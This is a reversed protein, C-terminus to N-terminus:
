KGNERLWAIVDAMENATLGHAENERTILKYTKGGTDLEEAFAEAVAYPVQKDGTSHILLIPTNIRDAFTVASRKEYEDSCDAPSGGIRRELMDRMDPRAEYITHLDYVGSIFSAAKIIHDHDELLILCGEMGGRSEGLLWVENPNVFSLEPILDLWFTFNAVDSGGFEDEDGYNPAIVICGSQYAYAAAVQPTVAGFNGNGGRAYLIVSCTNDTYNNPAAVYATIRRFDVAYQIEWATYEEMLVRYQEAIEAPLQSVDIGPAIHEKVEVSLISEADTLGEMADYSPEVINQVTTEDPLIEAETCATLVCLLIVILCQTLFAIKKM